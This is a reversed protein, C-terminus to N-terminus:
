GHLRWRVIDTHGMVSAVLLASAGEINQTNIDAGKEILLRAVESRGWESAIILATFGKNDRTNVDAGNNVLLGVLEHDREKKAAVAGALYHLPTCGASDKSDALVGEKFLLAMGEKDGNVAAVHLVTMGWVKANIDAGHKVLEVISELQGNGAAIHLPQLGYNESSWTLSSFFIHVVIIFIGILKTLNIKNNMKLWGNAYIVTSTVLYLTVKYMKIHVIDETLTAM